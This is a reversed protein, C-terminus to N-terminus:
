ARGYVPVTAGNVLGTPEDILWGIAVALTEPAVWRSADARPMAARNSPTDITSPLVVNATVGTGHTEAAIAETLAIVGAKAVIYAAAGGFPQRAARSSINVIRGHGQALMGPLVARCCLLASELNADRMAWWEDLAVDGLHNGGRYGGAANVLAAVRGHREVAGAVLREVAAPDALDVAITEVGDADVRQGARRATAITPWGRRALERAVAGGLAGAGGTVIAAGRERNAAM